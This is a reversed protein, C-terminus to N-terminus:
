TNAREVACAASSSSKLRTLGVTKMETGFFHISSCSAATQSAAESSESSTAACRRTMM